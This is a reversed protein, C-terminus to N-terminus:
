INEFYNMSRQYFAVYFIKVGLNCQASLLALSLSCVASELGLVMFIYEAYNVSSLIRLERIANFHDCSKFCGILISSELM